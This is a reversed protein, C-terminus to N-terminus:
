GGGVLTVCEFRDGEALLHTAHSARPVLERNVEVAVIESRLGLEAVLWAVTPAGGDPVDFTREVGNVCLKM